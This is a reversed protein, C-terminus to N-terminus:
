VGVHALSHKVPVKVIRLIVRIVGRIVTLYGKCVIGIDRIVRINSM